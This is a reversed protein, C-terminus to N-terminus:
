NVSGPKTFAMCALSVRLGQINKLCQWASDITAGTTVVDDVLLIHKNELNNKTSLEFIGEVNEWRQFKKKRTQTSSPRARYLSEQDIPVDLTKSLGRAFEESQNFGRERLKKPHLPIPLMVDFDPTNGSNKFEEGLLEGLLVALEKHKHYKISHVLRQVKGSKEFLYLCLSNEVPVRGGLMLNLPNNSQLHYNSKPLSLRCLKCISHEHRFLLIGCAQCHRPYILSLFDNILAM